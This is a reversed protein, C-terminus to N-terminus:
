GGDGAPATTEPVTTETGAEPTSADPPTPESPAATTSPTAADAPDVETPSNLNALSPPLAVEANKPNFSLVFIEGDKTFRVDDIGETVIKPETATTAQPPWVYLAVQGEKGDCDQGDAYEAGPTGEATSPLIIKGNEVTVGVQEAFLGFKANPGAAEDVFPQIHILGDENTHIGKANPGADKLNDQFEGCINVGFAAHWHDSNVVPAEGMATSRHDRAFFVGLSGVVIIAIILAPYGLSRRQGPARSVGAQQVRKIKKASSAKGM